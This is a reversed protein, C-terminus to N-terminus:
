PSLMAPNDQFVLAPKVFGGLLFGWVGDDPAQPNFFFGREGGQSM